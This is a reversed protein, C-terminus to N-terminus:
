ALLGLARARAVAQTRSCVNLKSYLNEIHWKVTGVTLVLQRAIEKNSMGAAILRLVELERQSLPEVLSQVSFASPHMAMEEKMTGREANMTAPFAALVSRVYDPAASHSVAQALLAAMPAGADVFSRLYGGPAALELTTQLTGLAREEAGGAQWARAMLILVEIVRGTRGDAAASQRLRDLLRLADGVAGQAIFLRALTLYEVERFHGFADDAGLGHEQAWRAATAIQGQALWLRAQAAAVYGVFRPVHSRQALHVAQEITALAGAADGQAQQALARTISGTLVVGVAGAQTAAAISDELARLAAALDNWEYLLGGMGIAAYSTAVAHQGAALDLAQAYLDAAQHLRAQQALLDALFCTALAEGNRDGAARSIAAARTFAQRAPAVAGHAWYAFGLNLAAMGGVDATPLRELTRRAHEATSRDVERLVAVIARIAAAMGLLDGSVGHQTARGGAALEAPLIPGEHLAAPAAVPSGLAREAAQVATEAAGLQGATLLTWGRALCLRPRTRVLDDPLADLWHLLRATEGRLWMSEALHEVLRAAAVYDAAALAHAIAEDSYGNAAWMREGPPAAGGGGRQRLRAVAWQQLAYLDNLGLRTYLRSLYQRVTTPALHLAQAIAAHRHGQAVLVLMEREIARLELDAFPDAHLRPDCYRQGAAVAALAEALTATAVPMLVLGQVMPAISHAVAAGPAVVLVPVAYSQALDLVADLEMTTDTLLTTIPLTPLAQALAALSAAATVVVGGAEAVAVCLGNRLLDCATLVAVRIHCRRSRAAQELEAAQAQAWALLASPAPPVRPMALAARLAAVIQAPLAPKPLPPACHLEHLFPLTDRWATHPVIPITPSLARIQVCVARGDLDPLKVDLIIVDLTALHQRVLDLGTVGDHACLVTWEPVASRVSLQVGTDDDIVLVTPM